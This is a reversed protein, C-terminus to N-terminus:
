RTGYRGTRASHSCQVSGDLAGDQAEGLRVSENSSQQRGGVQKKCAKSKVKATGPRDSGRTRKRIRLSRKALVWLPARCCSTDRQTAPVM